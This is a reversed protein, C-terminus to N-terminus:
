FSQKGEQCIQGFVLLQRRRLRGHRKQRILVALSQPHQQEEQLIHHGAHVLVLHSGGVQGDAQRGGEEVEARHPPLALCRVPLSM